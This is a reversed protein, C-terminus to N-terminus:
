RWLGCLHLHSFYKSASACFNRLPITGYCCYSVACSCGGHHGEVSIKRRLYIGTSLRRVFRPLHFAFGCPSMKHKKQETGHFGFFIIIKTSFDNARFNDLHSCFILFVSLLVGTPVLLHAEEDRKCPCTSLHVLPCPM